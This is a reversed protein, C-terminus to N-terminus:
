ELLSRFKIERAERDEDVVDGGEEAAALFAAKFAADMKNVVVNVAKAIEFGFIANQKLQEKEARAQAVTRKKPPHSSM